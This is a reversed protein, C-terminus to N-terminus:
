LAESIIADALMSLTQTSEINLSERLVSQVSGVGAALGLKGATELKSILADALKQEVDCDAVLYIAQIPQKGNFPRMEAQAINPPNWDLEVFIECDAFSLDVATALAAMTAVLVTPGSHGRATEIIEERESPSTDGSIPGFVRAACDGLLRVLAHAVEKHWAWAIVNHGAALSQKISQVAANTKEHAYLKRLRALDGVVSGGGSKSRIRAALEEVADRKSDSLAVVELTRNLPPLDGRIDVWLRRLMVDKLRERLEAENSAGEATWGYAGPRADCYRRAFDWFQGFAGPTVIDLISWLGKPKNYLPTGSAFVARKAVTNLFRISEITLSNRSQIGALHAEDVALTGISPLVSFLERWTPVIAYHCFIVRAHKAVELQAADLARGALAVFSPAWSHMPHSVSVRTCVSCADVGCWGFRRAAWEHWVARAALPGIVVMPGGDPDHSWMITPTKGVRQEDALITGRRTRIFEVGAVQHPRLVANAPPLAGSPSASVRADFGLMRLHSLHVKTPWPAENGMLTVGPVAQPAIKLREWVDGWNVVFWDRGLPRPIQVTTTTM